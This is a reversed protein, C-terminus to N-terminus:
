TDGTIAVQVQIYQLALAVRQRHRHRIIEGVFGSEHRVRVHQHANVEIALKGFRHAEALVMPM